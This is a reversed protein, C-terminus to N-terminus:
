LDQAADPLDEHLPVLEHAPALNQHREVGDVSLNLQLLRVRRTGLRPRLM